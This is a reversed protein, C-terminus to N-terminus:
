KLWAEHGTEKMVARTTDLLENFVNGTPAAVFGFNQDMLRGSALDIEKELTCRIHGGAEEFLLMAGAHDWVKGFRQRDKYVWVTANGLGMALAVWRLVWAILDCTPAPADLRQAITDHIGPLASQVHRLCSVFRLDKTNTIPTVSLRRHPTDIDALPRVFSGHGKVAYVICGEGKPDVDENRLPAQADNPLNPCGVAGVTQQGNVLLGINIAYLHGSVFAKTGDIPDFIWTRQSSSPQSTGCQDILDCMDERSAPLTCQKSASEDEALWQLLKWVTELLSQDQRLKGADEEGVLVDNPFARKFSAALLAQIAFDAITVPSQDNKSVAGKDKANVLHQSIKSAQRLAGFAVELEKRYPSDM